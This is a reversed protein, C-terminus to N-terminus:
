ASIQKSPDDKDGVPSSENEQAGVSLQDAVKKNQEVVIKPQAEEAINEDPSLTVNAAEISKTAAEISKTENLIDTERASTQAQSTQPRLEARVPQAGSKHFRGKGAEAKRHRIVLFAIVIALVIILCIIIGRSLIEVVRGQAAAKDAEFGARDAEALAKPAEAKVLEAGALAKEADVRALEAETTRPEETAQKEPSAVSTPTPQPEEGSESSSVKPPNSAIAPTTASADIALIRLHGRGNRDFSGSWLYGAGGSMRYVPLGLQASRQLNGLFDILLGKRPSGGSALISIADGDLQELQIKGWLAIVANTLGDRQPIRMERAREGFRNSLRNIERQAENGDFRRPAIHRNVYVVTGDQNRLISNTSDFTRGREQQKQTRQCWTFDSFQESPSCRYERYTASQSPVRVGLMIGDVGYPSAVGTRPSPVNANQAFVVGSALLPIVCLFIPIRSSLIREALNRAERPPDIRHALQPQSKCLM